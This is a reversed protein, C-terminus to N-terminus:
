ATAEAHSKIKRKSGVGRLARMARADACEAAIKPTFGSLTTVKYVQGDSRVDFRRGVEVAPGHFASRKGPGRKHNLRDNQMREHLASILFATLASVAANAQNPAM